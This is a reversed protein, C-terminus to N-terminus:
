FIGPLNGLSQGSMVNKFTPFYPLASILWYSHCRNPATRMTMPKATMANQNKPSGGTFLGINFLVGRSFGICRTDSASDLLINPCGTRVAIPPIDAQRPLVQLPLIRLDRLCLGLPSSSLVVFAQKASCLITNVSKRQSHPTQIVPSVQVVWSRSYNWLIRGRM